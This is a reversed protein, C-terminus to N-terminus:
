EAAPRASPRAPLPSVPARVPGAAPRVLVLCLGSVVLVLASLEPWGLPEELLLAASFVGVVPIMLTGVAAMSAPVLRVIRNWAYHCFVVPITVSFALAVAARWSVEAITAPDGVILMGLAIPLGGILLQWGALAIVDLSWRHWKLVITGAAWTVAAGVMLLSGGAAAGIAGWDRVALVAMAALGLALGVVARGGFREGLVVVGLVAAWLPMTFAIISARGAAIQSIGYATFINWCTINLFAALVLPGADARCVKLGRGTAAAIGLLGAAGTAFCLARFTWPDVEALIVKMAPWNLGWFLSLSGLLLVAEAPVGAPRADVAPVSEQM